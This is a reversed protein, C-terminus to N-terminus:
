TVFVQSYKEAKNFLFYRCSISHKPHNAIFRNEWRIGLEGTRVWLGTLFSGNVGEEEATPWFRGAGTAADERPGTALFVLTAAALPAAAVGDAPATGGGDSLKVTM